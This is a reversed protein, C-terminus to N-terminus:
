DCCLILEVEFFLSLFLSLSLSLSLYLSLSISLFLSFSLPLSLSLCLSLSILQSTTPRRAMRRRFMEEELSSQMSKPLLLISSLSFCWYKVLSRGVGRRDENGNARSGAQRRPRERVLSLSEQLQGQKNCEGLRLALQKTVPGVFASNQILRILSQM